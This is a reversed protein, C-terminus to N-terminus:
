CAQEIKDVGGFTSYKKIKWRTNNNISKRILMKKVEIHFEPLNYYVYKDKYSFKSFEPRCLNTRWFNKGMGYQAILDELHLIQM